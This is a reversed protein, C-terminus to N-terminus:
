KGLHQPPGQINFQRAALKAPLYGPDIRLAWRIYDFGEATYAKEIMWNGRTTFMMPYLAVIRQRTPGMGPTFRIPRLDLGAFHFPYDHRGDYVRLLLGEPVLPYDDLPPRYGHTLLVGGTKEARPVEWRIWAAVFRDAARRVERPDPRDATALAKLSDFSARVPRLRGAHASELLRLYAPDALRNPNIVVLDARLQEARRLYDYPVNLIAEEPSFILSELRATRFVNETHTRWLTDGARSVRPGHLVWLAPIVLWLLLGYGGPLRALLDATGLGALLAVGAAAMLAAYESAEGGILAGALIGGLALVLPPLAARNGAPLRALGWAAPLLGAPTLAWLVSWGPLAPGTAEPVGRALNLLGSVPHAPARLPLLFLTHAAALAFLAAPLIWKGPPRGRFALLALAPFALWAALHFGAALAALWVALFWRRPSLERGNGGAGPAGLLLAAGALAALSWTAPNVMLASAWGTRTVGALVGIWAAVMPAAWVRRGELRPLTWLAILGAFVAHGFLTLLNLRAAISGAPGAQGALHVLLRFLPALAGSAPDAAGAASAAWGAAAGPGIGAAVTLRGAALTLAFSTAFVVLALPVPTEARPVKM